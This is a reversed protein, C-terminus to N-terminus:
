IENKGGLEIFEYQETIGFLWEISCNLYESLRILIEIPPIYGVDIEEPIFVVNCSIADALEKVNKIGNEKMAIQIRKILMESYGRDSISSYGLQM